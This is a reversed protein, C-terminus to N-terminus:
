FMGFLYSIVGGFVATIFLGILTKMVWDVTQEIRDLRESTDSARHSVEEIKKRNGLAIQLVEWISRKIKNDLKRREDAAEQRVVDIKRDLRQIENEHRQIQRKMNILHKATEIKEVKKAPLHKM